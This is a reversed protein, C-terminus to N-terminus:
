MQPSSVPSMEERSPLFPHGFTLGGNGAILPAKPWGVTTLLTSVSAATGCMM